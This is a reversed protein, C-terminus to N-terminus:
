CDLTARLKKFIQHQITQGLRFEAKTKPETSSSAIESPSKNKAIYDSVQQTLARSLGLDFLSFYGIFAWVLTLLGFQELGYAAIIKPFLLLGVFLPLVNSSLSWVINRKVSTM